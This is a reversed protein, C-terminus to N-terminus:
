SGVAGLLAPGRGSVRAGPCGPVRSREGCPYTCLYCRASRRGWACVQAHLLVVLVKVRDAAPLALM